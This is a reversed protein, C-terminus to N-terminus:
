NKKPRGRGRKVAPQEKPVIVEEEVKDEEEKEDIVVDEEDGKEGKVDDVGEDSSASKEVIKQQQKKAAGGRKKRAPQSTEAEINKVDPKIEVDQSVAKKVVVTEIVEIRKPRGRKKSAGAAAVDGNKDSMDIGAFSLFQNQFSM